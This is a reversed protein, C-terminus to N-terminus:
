ADVVEDDHEAVVLGIGGIVAEHRGHGAGLLVDVVQGVVEVCTLGGAGTLAFGNNVACFYDVLRRGETGRGQSKKRDLAPCWL